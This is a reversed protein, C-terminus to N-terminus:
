LSAIDRRHTSPASPRAVSRKRDSRRHIILLSIAEPVADPKIEFPTYQTEAVDATGEMWYSKPIWDEEPITEIINRLTKHQRV